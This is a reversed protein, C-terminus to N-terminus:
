VNPDVSLAINSSPKFNCSLGYFIVTCNYYGCSFGRFGGLIIIFENWVCCSCLNVIVILFNEFGILQYFHVSPRKKFHCFWKQREHKAVVVSYIYCLRHCLSNWSSWGIFYIYPSAIKCLDSKDYHRGAIVM